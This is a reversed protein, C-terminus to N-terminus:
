VPVEVLSTTKLLYLRRNDFLFEHVFQDFFPDNRSQFVEGLYLVVCGNDIRVISYKTTLSDYFYCHGEKAQIEYLNGIKLLQM